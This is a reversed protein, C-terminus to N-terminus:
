FGRDLALALPLGFSVWLYGCLELPKFEAPRRERCAQKLTHLRQGIGLGELSFTLGGRSGAVVLVVRVGTLWWWLWWDYSQYVKRLTQQAPCGSVTLWWQTGLRGEAMKSERREVGGDRKKRRERRPQGLHGVHKYIICAENGRRQLKPDTLVWAKHSEDTERLVQWMSDETSFERGLFFGLWVQCSLKGWRM